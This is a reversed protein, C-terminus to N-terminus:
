SNFASVKKCHEIFLNVCFNKKMFNCMTCCSVSNEITYGINNDMRDVGISECSDCYTCNRSILNNFDLKSLEFIFGRRKSGTKYQYYRGPTTKKFMKEYKNAKERGELTSRNRPM